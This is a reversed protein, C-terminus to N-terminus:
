MLFVVSHNKHQNPLPWNHCNSPHHSGSKLDLEMAVDLNNPNLFSSFYNMLKIPIWIGESFCNSCIEIVSFVLNHQTQKLFEIFCLVRCMKM